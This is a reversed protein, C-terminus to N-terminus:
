KKLVEHSPKKPRTWSRIKIFVRALFYFVGLSVVWMVIFFNLSTEIQLTPTAIQVYGQNSRAFIGILLAVTAFVAWYILKKM